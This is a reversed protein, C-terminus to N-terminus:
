WITELDNGRGDGRRMAVIAAIMDIPSAADHRPRRDDGPLDPGHRSVGVGIASARALAKLIWACAMNRSVSKFEMAVTSALKYWINKSAAM